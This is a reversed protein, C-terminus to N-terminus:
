TCGGLYNVILLNSGGGDPQVEMLSEEKVLREETAGKRDHRWREGALM